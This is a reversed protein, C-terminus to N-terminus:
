VRRDAAAAALDVAYVEVAVADLDAVKGEEEEEM